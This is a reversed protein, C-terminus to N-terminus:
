DPKQRADGTAAIALKINPLKQNMYCSNAPKIEVM